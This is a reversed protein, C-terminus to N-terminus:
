MMSIIETAIKAANDGSSLIQEEQNPRLEITLKGSYAKTLLQELEDDSAAKAACGLETLPFEPMIGGGTVSLWEAMGIEPYLIAVVQRRWAAAEILTTTFAGTIVTAAAILDKILYPNNGLILKGKDWKEFERNAAELRTWEAQWKGEPDNSAMMLPHLRNILWIPQDIKKIVRVLSEMVEGTRNLQGAFFVVVDEEPIGLEQRLKQGRSSIEPEDMRYGDLWPWGLALVNAPDTKPFAIRALEIDRRDNGFYRTPTLKSWYENRYLGNGWFDSQLAVPCNLGMEQFAQAVEFGPMRDNCDVGSYFLAPSGISEIAEAATIYSNFSVKQGALADKAPGGAFLQVEIGKQRLLKVVPGVNNAPGADWCTSLIVKDM